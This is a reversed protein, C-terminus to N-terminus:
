IAGPRDPTDGPHRYPVQDLGLNDIHRRNEALTRNEKISDPKYLTALGVSRPGFLIKNLLPVLLFLLVMGSAGDIDLGDAVIVSGQNEPVPVSM